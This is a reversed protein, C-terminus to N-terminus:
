PSVEEIEPRHIRGPDLTRQTGRAYPIEPYGFGIIVGAYHNEPIELLSKIEPMNELAALPFTM